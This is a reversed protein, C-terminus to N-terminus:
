TSGTTSSVPTSGGVDTGDIRVPKADFFIAAERFDPIQGAVGAATRLRLSSLFSSKPFWPEEGIVWSLSGSPYTTSPAPEDLIGDTEHRVTGTLFIRDNWSLEQQGYVGFSPQDSNAETATFQSSLGSISTTTGVPGTGSVPFARTANDVYQAGITTKAQISRSLGYSATSTVSTTYTWVQAPDASLAGLATLPGNNVLLNAPLISNDLRNLFDVGGQVTTTLWPLARWTGTAGTTYRETNQLTQFQAIADPTIGEFYGHNADNYASGLLGLGLVGFLANDNQPLSLRGQLYTASLSVDITSNPHATITAHANGRRDV